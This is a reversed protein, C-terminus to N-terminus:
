VQYSSLITANHSQGLFTSTNQLIGIQTNDHVHLAFM